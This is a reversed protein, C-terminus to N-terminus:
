VTVSPATLMHQRMDVIEDGLAKLLELGIRPEEKILETLTNRAVFALDAEELTQATLSYRSESLCAPLGLISEPTVTRNVFVNGEDDELRLSISGRRLLFIGFPPEGRRFLVAGKPETILLAKASLQSMAKPCISAVKMRIM